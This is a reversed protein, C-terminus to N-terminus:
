LGTIRLQDLIPWDEFSILGIPKLEGMLLVRIIYASVWQM